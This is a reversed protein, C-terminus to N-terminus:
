RQGVLALLTQVFAQEDERGSAQMSAVLDRLSLCLGVSQSGGEGHVPILRTEWGAPLYTAPEVACAYYGFTDRFMSDEGISNIVDALAVSYPRTSVEAYDFNLLAAPADLLSGLISARGLILVEDRATLAAVARIIHELDTRKM